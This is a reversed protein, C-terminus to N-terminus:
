PRPIILKTGPELKDPASGIVDKNEEFIEKWRSRDGYIDEKGAISELTDGEQVVYIATKAAPTVPKPALIEELKKSLVENEQKFKDREQRAQELESAYADRQETVRELRQRLTTLQDERESVAVELREVTQKLATVSPTRTPQRRPVNPGEVAKRNHSCCISSFFVFVMAYLILCKLLKHRKARMETM